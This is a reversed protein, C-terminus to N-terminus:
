QVEGFGPLMAHRDAQRDIERNRGRVGSGYRYTARQKNELMAFSPQRMAGIETWKLATTSVLLLRQIM